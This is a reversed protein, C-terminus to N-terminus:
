HLFIISHIDKKVGLEMYTEIEFLTVIERFIGLFEMNKYKKKLTFFDSAHMEKDEIIFKGDKAYYM